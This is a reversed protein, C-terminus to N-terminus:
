RALRRALFGQMDRRGDAVGYVTVESESVRYVIRYRGIHIERYDRVGLLQMEGPMNGRFSQEALSNCAEQLSSLVRDARARSENAAIYAYLAMMDERADVAILVRRAM